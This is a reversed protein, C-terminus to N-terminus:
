GYYFNWGCDNCWDANTSEGTNYSGCDPCKSPGKFILKLLKKM